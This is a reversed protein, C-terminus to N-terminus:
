PLELFSDYQHRTVRQEVPPLQMYDGYLHTLYDHYHSLVSYPKGEFELTTYERFWETPMFEKTKYQFYVGALPMDEFPLSCLEQEIEHKVRGCSSLSPYRLRKMCYRLFWKMRDKTATQYLPCLRLAWERKGAMKAFHKDLGEAPAGDVPFIDVNVGWLSRGLKRDTMVTNKRSVKLFSEVCDNRGTLDLVENKDSRFTRLFRDYDPRPMLLDIDDDWPIFGKHRVAGILSGYALSYRLGQERCFRDIDDLIELQILKCGEIDLLKRM